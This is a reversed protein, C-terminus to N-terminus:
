KSELNKDLLKKVIGKKIEYTEDNYTFEFGSDRMCISIIEGYATKLQVPSFIEKLVLISDQNIEIKM